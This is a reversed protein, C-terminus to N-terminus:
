AHTEEKAHESGGQHWLVYKLDSWKLPPPDISAMLLPGGLEAEIQAGIRSLMMQRLSELFASLGLAAIALLTLMILTPMSGSGLVRDYVQMMYLPLTLLLVSMTFSFLGVSVFAERCAAIAKALPAQLRGESVGLNGLDM